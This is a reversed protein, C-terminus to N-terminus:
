EVNVSYDDAEAVRGDEEADYWQRDLEEQNAEWAKMDDTDKLFDFEKKTANKMMSESLTPQDSSENAKTMKSRETPVFPKLKANGAFFLM